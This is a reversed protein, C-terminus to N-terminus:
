VVEAQTQKIMRIGWERIGSYFIEIEKRDFVDPPFVGTHKVQNRLLM